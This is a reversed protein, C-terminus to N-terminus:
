IRLLGVSKFVESLFFQGHDNFNNRFRGQLFINQYNLLSVQYPLLNNIRPSPHHNLLLQIYIFDMCNFVKFSLPKHLLMLQFKAKVLNTQILNIIGM